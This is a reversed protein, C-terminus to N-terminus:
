PASVAWGRRELEGALLEAPMGRLLDARDLALRETASIREGSIASAGNAGGGGGDDDSTEGNLLLDILTSAESKSFKGAAQRQTLGLPGRGDRFGDHGAQKVLSLLYAIQKPSASPASQGFSM